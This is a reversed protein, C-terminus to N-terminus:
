FGEKQWNVKPWKHLGNGRTEAYRYRLYYILSAPGMLPQVNIIDQATPWRRITHQQGNITIVSM